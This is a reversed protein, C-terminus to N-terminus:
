KIKQCNKNTSMSNYFTQYTFLCLYKYVLNWM